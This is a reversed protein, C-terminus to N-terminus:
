SAYKQGLSEFGIADVPMVAKGQEDFTGTDVVGDDVKGGDV